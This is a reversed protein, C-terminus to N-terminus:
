KTGEERELQARLEAVREAVDLACLTWLVHKPWACQFLELVCEAEQLQERLTM